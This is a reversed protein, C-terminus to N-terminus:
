SSRDEIEWAHDLAHWAIRMAAYRSTWRKVIPSGDSPRRLVELMAARMAAIATTDAPDPEDLRLGLERAYSGDAGVVHGIVAATDRGGGRPGKRLEAPAAAATRDFFAWSEAVIDARRAAEAADLPERDAGAIKGPVGYATAGDGEVTEEADAGTAQPPEENSGAIASAYRDRYALLTEIAAEPTKGARSWGPWDVATAFTKKPTTELLIRVRSSGGM